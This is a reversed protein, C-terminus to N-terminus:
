CCKFTNESQLGCAAILTRNFIKLLHNKKAQQSIKICTMKLCFLTNRLNSQWSAGLILGNSKFQEKACHSNKYHPRVICSLPDMLPILIRSRARFSYFNSNWKENKLVGSISIRGYNHIYLTKHYIGWIDTM